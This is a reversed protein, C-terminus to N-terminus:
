GPGRREGEGQPHLWSLPPLQRPECVCWHVKGSTSQLQGVDTHGETSGGKVFCKSNHILLLFFSLQFWKLQVKSTPTCSLPMVM